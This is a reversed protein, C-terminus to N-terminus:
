IAVSPPYNDLTITRDITTGDYEVSVEKIGTIAQINAVVVRQIEKDGALVDMAAKYKQYAIAVDGQMSIIMQMDADHEEPTSYTPKMMIARTENWVKNDLVYYDIGASQAADVMTQDIAIVTVPGGDVNPVDIPKVGDIANAGDTYAAKSSVNMADIANGLQVKVASYIDTAKAVDAMTSEYAPALMPDTEGADIRARLAAAKSNGLDISTRLSVLQKYLDLAGSVAVSDVTGGNGGNPPLPYPEGIAIGKKAADTALQKMHLVYGATLMIVIAVVIAVILMVHSM